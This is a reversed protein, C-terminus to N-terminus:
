SLLFLFWASLAWLEAVLLRAGCHSNFIDWLNETPSVGACDQEEVLYVVAEEEAEASPDEKRSGGQWGCLASQSLELLCM